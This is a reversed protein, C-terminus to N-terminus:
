NIQIIKAISPVGQDNVAFLYYYGPTLVNPNAHTRLTYTSANQASVSVSLRRLDTNMAHTNASLKILSFQSINESRAGSITVNFSQNYGVTNPAAAIDPRTALSGDPNFLYAPSYIQGDQHDAACRCLGGGAILVRGDQLLTGTSHYNRAVSMAAVTRWTNSIPNYIEPILRSQEDNFEVGTGNGGIVLVEGTPLLITTHYSRSYTMDAIRTVQPTATNIDIIVASNLSGPTRERPTGGSMLIKGEAMMIASGWQRYVESSGRSGKTSIGGIGSVTIEHMQTTAGSHFITGNPAVHMYPYWDPTELSSTQNMVNSLNVGPLNQWSGNRYIETKGAASDGLSVMVEGSPLAVATGYWHPNIMDALRSWGSGNFISVKRRSATGDGGGAAMIRGDALSVLGACFMDHSSNDAQVFSNNTPNFIVAKTRNANPQGGFGNVDYSAWALVRGDSLNAMHTAILPWAQVAGWKGQSYELAPPASAPYLQSSPVIQRSQQTSSWELKITADGTNEYYELRIAYKQNALLSLTAQNVTAAHDTWNDILLQNNIWLRVGDDSTTYFSYTESYLPQIEGSWRISFSDAAIGAVPVGSGWSFNISADTRLVRSGTFNLNDYYEGLLGTGTGLAIQTTASASVAASSGLTNVAKLQYSYSTNAQLGSDVFTTTTPTAIQSYSGTGQRRELSYSNAGTVASWSLSIQSSSTATATFNSPSAPPTSLQTAFSISDLSCLGAPASIYVAAWNLGAPITIAKSLQQWVNSSFVLSEGIVQSSSSFAALGVTCSETSKGYASFTYSKGVELIAVPFNQQVWSFNSVNLAKAGAQAQSSISASGGFVQWNALDQEFGGNLISESGSPPPPPPATDGAILSLNDFQCEQDSPSLYVAMWDTNTPLSVTSGQEEWASSRFSLKKNFTEGNAGGGAFGLTCSAGNFARAFGKITYNQGIEIDSVALNQQIWAWGSSSLAQGTGTQGPSVASLTGSGYKIWNGTGSEFDGNLLLNVGTSVAQKSLTVLPHLVTQPLIEFDKAEFAWELKLSANASTKQFELRIAYYQRAQLKLREGAKLLKGDVFLQAKGEASLAFRYSGSQEPKLYGQWRASFDPALVGKAPAAERWDFYIQRDIQSLRPGNLGAQSFYEASLGLAKPNPQKQELPETTQSCSSFILMALVTLWVLSRQSPKM